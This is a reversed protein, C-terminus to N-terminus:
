LLEAAGTSQAWVGAGPLGQGEQRWAPQWVPKGWVTVCM